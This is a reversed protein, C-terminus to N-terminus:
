PLPMAALDAERIASLAGHAILDNANNLHLSGTIAALKMHGLGLPFVMMTVGPALSQLDFAHVIDADVDLTGPLIRRSTKVLVQDM